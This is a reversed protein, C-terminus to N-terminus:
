SSEVYYLCHFSFIYFPLVFFHHRYAKIKRNYLESIKMLNIQLESLECNENTEHIREDYELVWVHFINMNVKMIVSKKSVERVIINSNKYCKNKSEIWENMKTNNHKHKLISLRCFFVAVSFSSSNLSDDDYWYIKVPSLFIVHAGDSWCLFYSQKLCFIVFYVFSM